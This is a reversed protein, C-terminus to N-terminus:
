GCVNVFWDKDGAWAETIRFLGPEDPNRYMDVFLCRPESTVDNYISRLSTLLFDADEPKVHITVHFMTKVGSKPEIYSAM